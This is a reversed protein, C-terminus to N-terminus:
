LRTYTAHPDGLADLNPTVGLGPGEPIAVQGDVPAVVPTTVPYSSSSYPEAIWTGEYIGDPVVAGLHVTAAATLDGGWTDDITLPTGRAACVDIISRLPTIGGVRSLKMGFGQAIGAGIIGVISALDTASEDLFVPHHVRGVLLRHEDLTRCPQELALPIDRCAISFEMADRATWGRNADALLSIHAPVADAVARMCAVDTALQPGGTKLQLRQYGDAVLAAAKAASAEPTAPMIGWYSPVTERRAGGLADCLRQNSVKAALDWCAIDIAAKAYLHGDLVRDMAQYVLGSHRPDLGLVAPAVEAIAARAGSAFQPQYTPGLPCTEGFGVLGDDTHVAVVTTDLAEVQSTSMEYMGGAVAIEQIYVDVRSIKMRASM